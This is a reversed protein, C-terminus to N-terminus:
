FYLELFCYCYGSAFYYEPIIRYDTKNRFICLNFNSNFFQFSLNKGSLQPQFIHTCKCVAFYLIYQCHRLKQMQLTNIAITDIHLKQTLLSLTIGMKRTPCLSFQRTLSYYITHSGYVPCFHVSAIYYVYTPTDIKKHFLWLREVTVQVKQIDLRGCHNVHCASTFTQQCKIRASVLNFLANQAQFLVHCMLTRPSAATAIM